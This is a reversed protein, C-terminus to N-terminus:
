QGATAIPDTTVSITGTLAGADLTTLRQFAAASLDIAGPPLHGRDRVIVTVCKSGACVKLHTGCPYGNTAATSPDDASFTGGCALVGGDFDHGYWTIRAAQGDPPLATLYQGSVWGSSGAANVSYWGDATPDGFIHVQTGPPLVTIIQGSLSPTLRLRVGDASAVIADGRLPQAPTLDLYLSQVYGQQGQASVSVWGDSTPTALEDVGAGFPLVTLVNGSLSPADRLNLGDPSSVRAHQAALGTGAFCLMLLVALAAIHPFRSLGRRGPHERRPRLVAPAPDAKLM